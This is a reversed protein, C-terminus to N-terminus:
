TFHLNNISKHFIYIYIYIYIYIVCVSSPSSFFVNVFVLNHGIIIFVFYSLFHPQKKHVNFRIINVRYLVTSKPGFKGIIIQSM